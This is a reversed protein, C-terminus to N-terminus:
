YCLYNYLISIYEKNLGFVYQKNKSIKLFLGIIQSFFGEALVMNVPFKALLIKINLGSFILDDTQHYFITQTKNGTTGCL